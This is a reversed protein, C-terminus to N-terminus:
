SHAFLPEVGQVSVLVDDGEVKVAYEALRCDGPNIGKGTSADFTWQHARCMLVRGDFKGEALPIDQHPCIGQFARPEGGEPRVLVIVHGDVEVETMEGEWVDDLTCVKQYSM